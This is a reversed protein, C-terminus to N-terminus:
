QQLVIKGNKSCQIHKKSRDDKSNFFFCLVYELDEEAALCAKLESVVTAQFFGNTPRIEQDEVLKKFISKKDVVIKKFIFKEEIKM